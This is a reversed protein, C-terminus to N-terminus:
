AFHAQVAWMARQVFGNLQEGMSVSTIKRM